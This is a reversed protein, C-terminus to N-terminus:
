ALIHLGRAYVGSLFSRCSITDWGFSVPLTTYVFKGLNCELCEAVVDLLLYATELTSLWAKVGLIVHRIRASSRVCFPPMGLPYISVVISGRMEIIIYM